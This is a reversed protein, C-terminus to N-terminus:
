FEKDIKSCIVSYVLIWRQTLEHSCFSKFLIEILQKNSSFIITKTFNEKYKPTDFSKMM